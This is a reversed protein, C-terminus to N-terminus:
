QAKYGGRGMRSTAAFNLTVKKSIKYNTIFGLVFTKEVINENWAVNKTGAGEFDNKWM